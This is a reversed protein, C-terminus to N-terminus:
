SSLPPEQLRADSMSRIRESDVQNRLVATNTASGTGQVTSQGIMCSDVDGNRQEARQESSSNTGATSDM